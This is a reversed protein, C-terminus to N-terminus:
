PGSSAHDNHPAVSRAGATGQEIGPLVVPPRLEHTLWARALRWKRTVTTSSVGLVEAIQDRNLGGFFRLEVVKAMLPERRALDSLADDLVVLEPLRIPLCMDRQEDFPLFTKDVGRKARGRYRAHDVLVRRMVRACVAFFHSRDRWDVHKIEILRVFTEHVLETTQFSQKRQEGRLCAAALGKLRRYVCSILPDLAHGDGRRWAILLRTIARSDSSPPQHEASTM